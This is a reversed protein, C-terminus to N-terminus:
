DLAAGAADGSKGHLEGLMEAGRHDGGRAGAIVGIHAAEAGVAHDVVVLLIEGVDTRDAVHHEVGDAATDAGAAVRHELGAAFQHPDRRRRFAELRGGPNSVSRGSTM